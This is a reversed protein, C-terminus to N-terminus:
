TGGLDFDVELTRLQCNRELDSPGTAVSATATGDVIVYERLHSIKNCFLEM